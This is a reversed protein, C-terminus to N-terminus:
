ISKLLTNNLYTDKQASYNATWVLGVMKKGHREVNGSYEPQTDGVHPSQHNPHYIGTRFGASMANANGAIRNVEAGLIEPLREADQIARDLKEPDIEVSFRAM